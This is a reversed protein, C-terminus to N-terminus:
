TFTNNEDFSAIEMSTIKDQIDELWAGLQLRARDLEQGGESDPIETGRRYRRRPAWGRGQRPQTWASAALDLVATPM